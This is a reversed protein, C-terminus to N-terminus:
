AAPKRDYKALAKRHADVHILNYVKADHSKRWCKSCMGDQRPKRGLTSRTHGCPLKITKM